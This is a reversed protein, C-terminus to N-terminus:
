LQGCCRTSQPCTKPVCMLNLALKPEGGMAYVNSLVNSKGANM